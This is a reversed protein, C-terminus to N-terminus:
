DLSLEDRVGVAIDPHDCFVGDVGVEAYFYALLAELSESFPPLQDRRFTYPHVGLGLEHAERCVSTPEIRGDTLEVLRAYPIGIANAYGAIEELRGHSIDDDKGLLQVLALRSGLEERVRRLEVSDFCQVFVRSSPREYGRSALISLLREAVDVGHEHHWRPEKIEPYIGADRRTSHNLGQILEIEDELTSVRFRGRGLPFRDPFLADDTAPRRRESVHLTEIEAWDFDIVYFHGDGRARKPFRTAIDTVDELYIDHLVLLVGDRTAVVDQEIFDAGVAHAMVKSEATHEPLYASAGRHAIVWPKAM